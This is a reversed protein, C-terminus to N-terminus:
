ERENELNKLSEKGIGNVSDKQFNKGEEIKKEREVRNDNWGNGRKGKLKRRIVLWYPGVDM